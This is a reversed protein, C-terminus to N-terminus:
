AETKPMQSSVSADSCGKIKVRERQIKMVVERLACRHIHGFKRKKVLICIM